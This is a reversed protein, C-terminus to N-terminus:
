AHVFILPVPPVIVDGEDADVVIVAGDVARLAATSEDSFNVHGPCDIM